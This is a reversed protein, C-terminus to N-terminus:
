LTGSLPHQSFEITIEMFSDKCHQPFDRGAYTGSISTWGANLPVAPIGSCEMSDLFGFFGKIETVQENM